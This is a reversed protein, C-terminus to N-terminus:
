HHFTKQGLQKKWNHHWARSPQASQPLRRRSIWLPRCYDSNVLASLMKMKMQAQECILNSTAVFREIIQLQFQHLLSNPPRWLCLRIRAELHCGSFRSLSTAYLNKSFLSVFYFIHWVADKANLVRALRSLFISYITFNWQTEHSSNNIVTMNYLESRRSCVAFPLLLFICPSIYIYLLSLYVHIYTIVSGYDNIWLLLMKGDRRGSLENVENDM